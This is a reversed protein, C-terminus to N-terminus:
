VPRPAVGHEGRDLWQRDRGTVRRIIMPFMVMGWSDPDGAFRRDAVRNADALRLPETFGHALGVVVVGRASM